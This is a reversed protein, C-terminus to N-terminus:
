YKTSVKQFETPSLHCRRVIGNIVKTSLWVKLFHMPLLCSHTAFLLLTQILFLLPVWRLCRLRLHHLLQFRSKVETIVVTPLISHWAVYSCKVQILGWLLGTVHTYYHGWQILSSVLACYSILPLALISILRPVSYAMPTRVIGKYFSFDSSCTYIM